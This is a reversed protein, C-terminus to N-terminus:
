PLNAILRAAVNDWSLGESAKQIEKFKTRRAADDKPLQAILSKSADRCIEAEIQDRLSFNVNLFDEKNKFLELFSKPVMTFDIGIYHHEKLLSKLLEHCGCSTSVAASGGFPTTELQAIGFPEYISLGFEMDSSLRLDRLSTNEPVRSGCRERSFGFQNLFVAKIAKSRANFLQLQSYLDEESGVLDPWGERHMVPWGYDSEMKYVLEPDRGPGILTSLITFFGKKGSKSLEEDIYYMLHIDRWIAKSPVLRTVHTFIYDPRFNFIRECYEKIKATSEVKDRYRADGHNVGNYVVRIKSQDAHPCLYIYENRTIESVAFIRDLLSARKVLENRSYNEKSGYTDELSVGNDRDIAMTNYFTFDHGPHNEVIVRATSVEHAYFITGDGSRRGTKKCIEIALASAMGMYEHSFLMIREDGFLAEAIEVMPIAIRLYQEYDRDHQYKESRIQYHEWLRFKFDDVVGQPMEWIDLAVIDSSFKKRSDADDYFYKKGYVIRVGYKKEISALKSSLNARDVGDIGSYIIESDEGLREDPDTALTFLPTYLLNHEFQKHYLKSTILGHLVTGIGGFKQVAEHTVHIALTM